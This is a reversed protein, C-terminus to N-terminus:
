PRESIEGGLIAQLDVLESDVYGWSLPPMALRSQRRAFWDCNHYNAALASDNNEHICQNCLHKGPCPKCFARLHLPTRYIKLDSIKWGYGGGHPMYHELEEKTVGAEDYIHNLLSESDGEWKEFDEIENCIFEGIVASRQKKAELYGSVYTGTRYIYCKIPLPERPKTKRIELRKEGSTILHCWKPRISILISKM